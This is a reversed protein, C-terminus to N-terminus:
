ARRALPGARASKRSPAGESSAALADSKGGRSITFTGVFNALSSSEQLISRCAATAEEAMAANQQTMQDMQTIASNIENLGGAQADASNSIESIFANIASVQKHIHKLASGTADVLSVGENVQAASNSILQKIEKAAEAARQALARVEAAVVAFGRGAEGARAAEVGANLALLNTQFAIEDIVAIIHSIQRSSGSIKDM